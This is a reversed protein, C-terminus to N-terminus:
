ILGGYKFLPSIQNDMMHYKFNLLIQITLKVDAIIRSNKNDTRGTCFSRLAESFKLSSELLTGCLLLRSIQSGNTSENTTMEQIEDSKYTPLKTSGIQLRNLYSIYLLWIIIIIFYHPLSSNNHFLWISSCYFLYTSIGRTSLM